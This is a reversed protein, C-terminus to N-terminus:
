ISYPFHINLYYISSSFDAFSLNQLYSCGPLQTENDEKEEDTSSGVQINSFWVPMGFLADSDNTVKAVGDCNSM